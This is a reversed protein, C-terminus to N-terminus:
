LSFPYISSKVLQYFGESRYVVELVTKKDLLRLDKKPHSVNNRWDRIFELDAHVLAGLQSIIMEKESCLLQNFTLDETPEKGHNKHYLVYLLSESAFSADRISNEFDGDELERRSKKLHEEIEVIRNRQLAYVVIPNEKELDELSGNRISVWEKLIAKKEKPSAFKHAFEDISVLAVNEKSLWNRLKDLKNPDAKKADKFTEPHVVIFNSCGPDISEAIIWKKFDDSSELEKVPLSETFIVKIRHEKELKEYYHSWHRIYGLLDWAVHDIAEGYTDWLNNLEEAWAFSCRIWTSWDVEKFNPNIPCKECRPPQTPESEREEEYWTEEIRWKECLTKNCYGSGHLIYTVFGVFLARDLNKVWRSVDAVQDMDGYVKLNLLKRFDGYLLQEGKFEETV